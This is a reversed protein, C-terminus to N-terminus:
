ALFLSRYRRVEMALISKGFASAPSKRYPAFQSMSCLWKKRKIGVLVGASVHAIFCAIPLYLKLVHFNQVAGM